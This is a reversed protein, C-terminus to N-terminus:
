CSEAIYAEYKALREKNEDLSNRRELKDDDIVGPQEQYNEEVTMDVIRRFEAAAERQQRCVVQRTDDDQQAQQAAEAKAEAQQDICNDRIGQEISSLQERFASSRQPQDLMGVYTDFLEKCQASMAAYAAPVRLDSFREAQALPDVVPVAPESLANAEAEAQITAARAQEQRRDYVVLAVIGVIMTAILILLVTLLSAGRQNMMPLKGQHLPRYQPGVCLNAGNLHEFLHPAAVLAFQSLCFASSASRPAIPVALL